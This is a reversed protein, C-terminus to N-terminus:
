AMRGAHFPDGDNGDQGEPERGTSLGRCRKRSVDVRRVELRPRGVAEGGGRLLRPRAVEREGEQFRQRLGGAGEGPVPIKGSTGTGIINSLPVTKIEKRGGIVFLFPWELRQFAHESQIIEM